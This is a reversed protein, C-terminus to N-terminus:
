NWVLEGDAQPRAEGRNIAVSLGLFGTFYFFDAYFAGYVFLFFLIRALFAALLFGNLRQLAPDGHRCNRYLVRLAVGWFWLLAAVGYLGFPIVVSLPGNHYDGALEAGETQRGVGWVRADEIMFLERPNLAFGKGKFLYRPVDPLVAKWMEVRWETSSEAGEKTRPDIRIPLFSLTRQVSLPMRDAYLAVGAGVVALLAALVFLFRTKWLGEILFLFVFLLGLLVLMSRFGAFLGMGVAVILFVGRWPRSFDLVGRVGYKALLFGTLAQSVGMLSSIRVLSNDLTWDAAIQGMALDVPFFDYLFYFRPGALYALNSAAATLGSLIFISVYLAARHRPIAQSTLAFYGAIASLLIFYRKSGHTESGLSRFGFGGNVLATAIVVVVLFILSRTIGPVQLFRKELSVSRGLVAFFLSLWVMVVWLAPSGPLFAPAIFANWSLVLLVHHWRMMLPVCLLSLVMVLVVLSGSDLPEALLYGLLVAIPLCLGFILHNRSVVFTNAM